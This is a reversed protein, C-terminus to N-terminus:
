TISQMWTISTFQGRHLESISAGRGKQCDHGRRGGAGPMRWSRKRDHQPASRGAVATEVGDCM